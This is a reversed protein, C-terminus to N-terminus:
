DASETTEQCESYLRKHSNRGGPQDVMAGQSVVHQSSMLTDMDHCEAITDQQWKQPDAAQRRTM